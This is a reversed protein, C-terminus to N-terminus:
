NRSKTLLSQNYESLFLYKTKPNFLLNNMNKQPPYTPVDRIKQMFIVILLYVYM